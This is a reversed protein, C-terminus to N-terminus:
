FLFSLFFNTACLNSANYVAFSLSSAFMVLFIYTVSFHIIMADWTSSRRDIIVNFALRVFDAWHTEKINKLPFKSIPHDWIRYAHIHNEKWQELNKRLVYKCDESVNVLSFLNIFIFASNIQTKDQNKSQPIRHKIKSIAQSFFYKQGM